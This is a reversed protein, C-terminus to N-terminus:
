LDELGAVVGKFFGVFVYWVLDALLALLTAQLLRASPVALGGQSDFCSVHLWDFAVFVQVFSLLTFVSGRGLLCFLSSFLM